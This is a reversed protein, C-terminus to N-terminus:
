KRKFINRIRSAFDRKRSKVSEEYYGYGNMYGYGEKRSYQVGNLLVNLGKLHQMAFMEKVTDTSNRKSYGCRFIYIPIDAEALINIGDSVIGVPASDTIIVDYSDRLEHMIAKFRHSLLLESPNPPIPGATIFDLGELESHRISEHLESQGTILGSMGITNDTNLGLHIKPKRLDLDLVITKKGSMAIIGAINLAVFTKGEGSTSSSVAITRFNPHVYNLNTRIRRLTESLATNPANHVLLQSFVMEQKVLPVTGLVNVKSPLIKHLDELQTIENYTLYRLAIIGLGILLALAFSSAYVLKRNPSVPSSEVTARSLVRSNSSYGADSISYLFKKETLLSFYKENLEQINKLRVFEMKKEPLNIYESEYKAIEDRILRSESNLRELITSISKRISLLKTQIKSNIAKIESSEGTVIFLLDDKKELLEHLQSIQGSLVTQYSRGMMEPLLRYVDLRNPESRLKESVMNLARMEEDILYIKEQQESIKSTISNSASEPDPLNSRRQYDMLSDKSLRLENGISDLQQDIFSIIKESSRRQIDEDYTLYANGVADVIDRCLQPNSGRFSIQITKAVPDLPAVVLASHFRNAFTNLSNFTFHLDNQRFDDELSAVNTSKIVIDFDNNKIHQNLRGIVKKVQGKHQYSVILVGDIYDLNIPVGILTSDNLKYPEVNFTPSNYKEETLVEGKSYISVQHDIKRIAREFMLESRLLEITVSLDNQRVNLNELNLIEKARDQEEIQVVMSSEYLPKTYRLYIWAILISLLVLLVPIWWSRRLVIKLISLDFEKNVIFGRKSM